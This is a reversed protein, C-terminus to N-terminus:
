GNAITNRIIGVGTIETEMVDGPKLFEPPNRSYGVGSPTGTAIIDGPLLTLGKSLEAIITPIKFYMQQYSANQKQVGNVRCIVRTNNLDVGGATVVWPGMPGHGDLSKGKFWQGSHRKQQVDRATTDNYAAYGFVYNMAEAEPINKGKRGIVVAIEAEWDIATSFSPDYPISDFPGNMTQTGKSFFVPVKPYEKVTKDARADKGEEFHDLYNWGVAYINSQPRPIPSLLKVHQVPIGGTQAKSVLKQVQQLAQDGAHLFSLMSTPDFSLKVKQKQAQMAIDIVTGMDTVVGLRASARAAPQFNAIRLGMQGSLPPIEVTLPQAHSPTAALASVTATASAKLLNRRSLNM